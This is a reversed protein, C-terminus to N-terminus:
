IANALEFIFNMIISFGFFIAAGIVFPVLKKKIDARAEVSSLMYKAGLITIYILAIGIGTMQVTRFVMGGLTTINSGNAIGVVGSFDGTNIDTAAEVNTSMIAIFAVIMIGIIQMKKKM